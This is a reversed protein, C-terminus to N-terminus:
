RRLRKPTTLPSRRTTTTRRHLRAAAADDEADAQHTAGVRQYKVYARVPISAGARTAAGFSVVVEPDHYTVTPTRSGNAAVTVAMRNNAAACDIEIDDTVDSTEGDTNDM